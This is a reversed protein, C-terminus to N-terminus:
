DCFWRTVSPRVRSHCVSLLM